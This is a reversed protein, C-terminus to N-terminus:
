TMGQNSHSSISAKSSPLRLLTGSFALPPQNNTRAGLVVYHPSMDYQMTQFYEDGWRGERDLGGLRLLGAGALIMVLAANIPWRGAQAAPRARRAHERLGPQM